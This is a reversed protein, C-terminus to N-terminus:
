NSNININQQLMSDIYADEIVVCMGELMGDEIGEMCGYSNFLVLSGDVPAEPAKCTFM